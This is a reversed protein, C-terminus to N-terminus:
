KKNLQTLATKFENPTNFNMLGNWQKPALLTQANQQALFQMVRRNGALLYDQLADKLHLEYCGLLPYDKDNAKLYQIGSAMTKSPQSSQTLSTNFTTNFLAILKHLPVLSDCSLVLIKGKTGSAQLVQMAGAIASLAGASKAQKGDSTIASAIDSANDTAIFDDVMIVSNKHMQSVFGQANDAVLISLKPNHTAKYALAQRIHYDLLTEQQPKTNKSNTAAQVLGGSANNKAITLLAKAQGMRVSKGGALILIANITNTAQYAFSSKLSKNTPM